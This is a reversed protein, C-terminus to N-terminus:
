LLADVVSPPLERGHPADLAEVIFCQLRIESSLDSQELTLQLAGISAM